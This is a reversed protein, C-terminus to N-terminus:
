AALAAAAVFCCAVGTEIAGIVAPRMGPRMVVVRLLAPTFGVLWWPSAVAFAALAVVHYGLTLRRFSVDGARRLLSKVHQVFNLQKNSTTTWFDPRNYGSVVPPFARCPM